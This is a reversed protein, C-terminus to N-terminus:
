KISTLIRNLAWYEPNRYGNLIEGFQSCFCCTSIVGFILLVAVMIGGIFTFVEKCEREGYRVLILAVFALISFIILGIGYGILSNTSEIPAQRILVGWIYETTTGLKQALVNVLEVTNNDM